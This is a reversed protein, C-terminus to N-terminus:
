LTTLSKKNIRILYLSNLVLTLLIIVGCIFTNTAPVENLFMWVWIRAMITEVIM